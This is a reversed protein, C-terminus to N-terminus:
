QITKGVSPLRRIENLVAAYVLAEIRDLFKPSVRTFKHARQESAIRLALKKVKAKNLLTTM